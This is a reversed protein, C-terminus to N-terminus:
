LGFGFARDSVMGILYDDILPDSRGRTAARKAKLAKELAFYRMAEVAMATRVKFTRGGPWETKYPIPADDNRGTTSTASSRSKRPGTSRRSQLDDQRVGQRGAERRPGVHPDDRPDARRHGVRYRKDAMRVQRRVIGNPSYKEMAGLLTWVMGCQKKFFKTRHDRLVANSSQRCYEYGNLEVDLRRLLSPGWTRYLLDYGQEVINLTEHDELGLNKQTESWFHMNEWPVDHLRGEKKLRDYLPTGPFPSLRTLQQYTPCLAVFYNLDEMINAHSHFDWGCVWSGVTRVGMRHLNKFVWKPDVTSRKKYKLLDGFKSEVGIFMVGIGMEPIADWGFRDVFAGIFDLSGFSFWDVAESLEPHSQWPERIQILYDPWRFHDEDVVFISSM